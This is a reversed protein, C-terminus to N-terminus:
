LKSLYPGHSMNGAFQNWREDYKREWYQAMKPGMHKQGVRRKKSRTLEFFIEEVPQDDHQWNFKGNLNAVLGVNRLRM